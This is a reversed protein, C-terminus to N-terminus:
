IRCKLAEEYRRRYQSGMRTAHFVLIDGGETMVALIELAAGAVDDGLYLVRDSGYPSGIPPPVDFALGCHRIAYEIQERSIGHKSASKALRIV